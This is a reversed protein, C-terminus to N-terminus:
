TQRTERIGGHRRPYVHLPFRPEFERSKAQSALARVLQAVEANSKGEKLSNSNQYYLHCSEFRRCRPGLGRVRGVSSCRHKSAGVPSSGM